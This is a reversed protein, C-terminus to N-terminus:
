LGVELCEEDKTFCNIFKVHPNDEVHISAPRNSFASNTFMTLTGGKVSIDMDKGFNMADFVVGWSDELVIKSFFMQGGSFIYGPKAGLIKVGVGKNGGSHNFTCGVASGHACNPSQKQSNDILFATTNSNFGCNVFVNNGGNNVCGYLNTESLVNTFKHFESFHDINIGAGCNLIHCDSVTLSCMTVYGTDRCTIGGGTFSKIICGTIIANRPQGGFQKPTADGLFMLGHRTGVETPREINEAAGLVQLDKVTCYSNLRIACGEQVDEHLLVKTAAGVGMIASGKPMEVGSVVYIGDGLMCVGHQELMAQIDATRDTHDNTSPLIYNDYSM